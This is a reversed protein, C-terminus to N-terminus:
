IQSTSETSGKTEGLSEIGSMERVKDILVSSISRPLRNVFSLGVLKHDTEGAGKIYLCRALLALDRQNINSISIPKGDQMVISGIMADEYFAGAEADAERLIYEHGEIVVSLEQLKISDFTLNAM